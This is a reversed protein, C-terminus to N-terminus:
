AQVQKRWEQVSTKISDIYGQTDNESSPAYTPVIADITTKHWTTVYYHILQYWDSYGDAWSDYARFGNLCRYGSSCRINGLGKNTAAIGYKGFSSEHQFFALAFAPDIGAQVGDNYMDTGTGCAPSDAKCLVSDIFHASISPSATVAMTASDMANASQQQHANSLSGYGLVALVLLGIIGLIKM